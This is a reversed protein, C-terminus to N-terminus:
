TIRLFLVINIIKLNFCYCRKLASVCRTRTYIICTLTQEALGDQPQSLARHRVQQGPGFGPVLQAQLAALWEHAHLQPETVRAVNVLEHVHLAHFLFTLSLQLTRSLTNCM